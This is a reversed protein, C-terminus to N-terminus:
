CTARGPLAVAHPHPEDPDRAAARSFSRTRRSRRRTRSRNRPLRVPPRVQSAVPVDSNLERWGDDPRGVLMLDEQELEAAEAKTGIRVVGPFRDCLAQLRRSQPTGSEVRQKPVM